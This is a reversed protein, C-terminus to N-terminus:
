DSVASLELDTITGGPTGIKQLAEPEAALPPFSREPATLIPRSPAAPVTPRPLAVTSAANQGDDPADTEGCM